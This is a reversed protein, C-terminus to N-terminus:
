ISKKVQMSYTPGRNPKLNKLYYLEDEPLNNIDYYWPMHKAVYSGGMRFGHGWIPKTNPHYVAFTTDIPAQYLEFGNHIIKNMWYQSEIERVSNTYSTEPLNDVRLGLGIKHSNLEGCLEVMHDIFDTPTDDEPIVDSDTFVYFDKVIDVFQPHGLEYALRYFTGTDYLTKPINNYFVNIESTNYWELLPAYTSENDIIIINNYNRRRLAEVLLKLPTVRDKNLIVIPINKM